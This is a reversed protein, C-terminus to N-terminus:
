CISWMQEFQKVLTDADEWMELSINNKFAQLKELSNFM